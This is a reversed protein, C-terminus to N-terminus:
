RQKKLDDMYDAFETLKIAAKRLTRSSHHRISPVAEDNFWRLFEEIEEDVRQSVREFNPKRKKESESSM